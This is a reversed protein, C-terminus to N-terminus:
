TKKEKKVTHLQDELFSDSSNDEFGLFSASCGCPRWPRLYWLVKNVCMRIKNIVSNLKIGTHRKKQNM